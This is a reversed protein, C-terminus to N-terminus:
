PAHVCSDILEVATVSGAALHRRAEEGQEEKSVRGAKALAEPEFSVSAPPPAPAVGPPPAPPAALPAGAAAAAQLKLLPPVGFVWDLVNLYKSRFVDRENAYCHMIVATAASFLLADLRAPPAGGPLLSRLWGWRHACLAFSEAARSLCYLALEMRRSKKEFLVALGAPFTGVALTMDDCRQLLQHICCTWLWASSCFFALFFSSRVAGKATKALIPLPRHLLAKRHVLLAPVVYVPLYVPIARLYAKRLFLLFHPLCGEGPHLMGCPVKMYPDTRAAIGRAMNAADLPALDALPRRPSAVDKVRTIVATSKGGHKNLFALYSPPLTSPEVIWAYLIQSCSLCMLFVDGHQWTLPRFLWGLRPSKIGCRAALVAARVLIYLALSTHRTDRGTLLLSPGALAGAVLPRWRATRRVGWLGAALEDISCYTGAFAGLFMGYRITETLPGAGSFKAAAGKEVRGSARRRLRGLLSFLALGGKLGAGIVFGKMAASACRELSDLAEPHLEAAGATGDRLEQQQWKDGDCAVPVEPGGSPCPASALVAEEASLVNRDSSVKPAQLSRHSIGQGSVKSTGRRKPRTDHRARKIDVISGVDPNGTDAM